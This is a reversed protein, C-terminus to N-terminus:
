SRLPLRLDRDYRLSGGRRLPDAPLRDGGGAPPRAAAPGGPRLGPRRAGAEDAPRDPLAPRRDRVAPPLRPPRDDGGDGPAPRSLALRGAAQGVGGAVRGPM